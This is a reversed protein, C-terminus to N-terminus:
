FTQMVKKWGIGRRARCGALAMYYMSKLIIVYNMSLYTLTKHSYTYFLLRNSMLTMNGTYSYPWPQPAQHLRPLTIAIEGTPGAQQPQHIRNLKKTM